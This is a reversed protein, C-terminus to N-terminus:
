HPSFRRIGEMVIGLIRIDDTRYVLPAYSENAPELRVHDKDERYFRKLTTRGTQEGILAEAFDRKTAFTVHRSCGIYGGNHVATPDLEPVGALTCIPFIQM